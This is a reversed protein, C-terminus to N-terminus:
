HGGGMWLHHGLLVSAKVNGLVHRADPLVQLIDIRTLLEGVGAGAVFLNLDGVLVHGLPQDFLAVGGLGPVPEAM